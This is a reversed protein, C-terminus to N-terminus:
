QRGVEPSLARKDPAIARLYTRVDKRAHHVRSKVIPVTLNLERAIEALKMEEFILLYLPDRRKTPLNCVLRRVNSSLDALIAGQEPTAAARLFGSSDPFAELARPPDNVLRLSKRHRLFMLSFNFTIRTLWTRFGAEGRFRTINRWASFLASQVVDEADERNQVLSAAFRLQCPRYRRVLETFAEDSGSQATAVLQAEDDM